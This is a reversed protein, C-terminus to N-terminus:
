PARDSICWVPKYRHSMALFRAVLLYEALSVTPTPLRLFTLLLVFAHLFPHFFCFVIQPTGVPQNFQEAAGRLRDPWSSHYSHVVEVAPSYAHHCIRNSGQAYMHFEVHQYFQMWNAVNKPHMEVKVRVGPQM